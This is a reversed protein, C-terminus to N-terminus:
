RRNQIDGQTNHCTNHARDNEKRNHSRDTNKVINISQGAESGSHELTKKKYDATNRDDFDKVPLMAVSGNASVQIELVLYKM